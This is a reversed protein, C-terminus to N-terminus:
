LAVITYGKMDLEIDRGATEDRQSLYVVENGKVAKLTSSANKTYTM